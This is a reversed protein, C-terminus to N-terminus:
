RSCTSSAAGVLPLPRQWFRHLLDYECLGDHGIFETMDHLYLQILRDV